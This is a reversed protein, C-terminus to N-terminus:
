AQGRFVGSIFVFGNMRFDAAREGSEKLLDSHIDASWPSVHHLVVLTEFFFRMLDWTVERQKPPKKPPKKPPSSTPAGVKSSINRHLAYWISHLTLFTFIYGLLVENQSSHRRPADPGVNRGSGSLEAGKQELQDFIMETPDRFQATGIQDFIMETPDRFKGVGIKTLEKEANSPPDLGLTPALNPANM